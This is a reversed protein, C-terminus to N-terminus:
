MKTFYIEHAKGISTKQQGVSLCYRRYDRYTSCNDLVIPKVSIKLLSSIGEIDHVCTPM